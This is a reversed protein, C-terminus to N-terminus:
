MRRLDSATDVDRLTAIQAVRLGGLSKLTDELTHASSWRVNQFLTKPVARTGRRLGILWYGGDPAPGVVADHDALADFAEGIHKPTIGPIDAGIIVLPGQGACRFIRGMRDGLDGRGQPWRLLGRPWIRSTVGEIDPAVALITKWRPDLSM